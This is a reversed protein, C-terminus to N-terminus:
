RTTEDPMLGKGQTSRIQHLVCSDFSKLGDAFFHAVVKVCLNTKPSKCFMCDKCEPTYLPIVHDGADVM